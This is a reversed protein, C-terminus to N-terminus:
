THKPERRLVLAFGFLAVVVAVVAIGVWQATPQKYTLGGSGTPAAMASGAAGSAAAAANIRFDTRSDDDGGAARVSYSGANAGAPIVATTMADGNADTTVTTLPLSGTVGELTISVLTTPSYGKLDVQVKDGPAAQVPTVAVTAGGHAAAPGALAAASVVLAAAVVTMAALVTKM